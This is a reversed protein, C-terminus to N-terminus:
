PRTALDSPLERQIRCGDAVLRCSSSFKLRAGVSCREASLPRAVLGVIYRLAHCSPDSGGADLQINRLATFRPFAFPVLWLRTM